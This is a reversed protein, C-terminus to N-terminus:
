LHTKESNHSKYIWVESVHVQIVFTQKVSSM